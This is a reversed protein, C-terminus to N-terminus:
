GRAAAKVRSELGWLGFDGLRFGLGQVRPNLLFPKPSLPKPNGRAGVRDM